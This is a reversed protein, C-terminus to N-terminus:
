YVSSPPEPVFGLVPGGIDWGHHGILHGGLAVDGLMWTNSVQRCLLLLELRREQSSRFRLIAVMQFLPGDRPRYFGPHMWGLRGSARAKDLWEAADQTGFAERDWGLKRVGRMLEDVHSSLYIEVMWLSGWVVHEDAPPTSRANEEDARRNIRVDGRRLRERQGLRIKAQM